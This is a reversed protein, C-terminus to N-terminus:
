RLHSTSFYLPFASKLLLYDLPVFGFAIYLKAHWCVALKRSARALRTEVPEPSSFTPIPPLVRVVKMAGKKRGLQSDRLRRPHIM